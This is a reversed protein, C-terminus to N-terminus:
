HQGVCHQVALNVCIEMEGEGWDGAHNLFCLHIMGSEMSGQIWSWSQRVVDGMGEWGGDRLRRLHSHLTLGHGRRATDELHDELIVIGLKWYPYGEFSFIM